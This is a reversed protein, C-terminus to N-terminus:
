RMAETLAANWEDLQSATFPFVDESSAPQRSFSWVWTLTCCGYAIGSIMSWAHGGVMGVYRRMAIGVFDVMLYLSFGIVIGWFRRDWRLNFFLAIILLLLLLGARITIGVQDFMLVGTIVRDFEKGSAVAAGFASILVLMAAAWHFLVSGFRQLTPYFRFFEQYVERIVAISVCVVVIESIWYTYFYASYHQRIGWISFAFLATSRAFQLVCYALFLPFQRLLHRRMIQWIVTSLCSQSVFWWVHEISPELM